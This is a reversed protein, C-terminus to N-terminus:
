NALNWNEKDIKFQTFGGSLALSLKIDESMNLHYAYTLATGARSTPGVQDNYVSRRIWCSRFIKWLYKILYNQADEGWGM